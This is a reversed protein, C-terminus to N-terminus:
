VVMVWTCTETYFILKVDRELGGICVTCAFEKSPIGSYNKEEMFNVRLNKVTQLEGDDGKFKFFMPTISGNSTFWGNCAIPYIKGLLIGSDTDTNVKSAEAFGM